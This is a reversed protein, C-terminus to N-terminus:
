ALPWVWVILPTGALLVMLSLPAGLRAYDGFRYGGPGMVLTNNQHGIPTLFDCACGLAVAILFPEPRLGLQTALQAAIPGLMLVAAANNLFPTVAMAMLLVLGVTLAPTLHSAGSTLLNAVTGSAGTSSFAEGIPILCGLMVLVPWEIAGYADKLTIQRFLVCGLAAAFFAVEVRAWGLGVALLALALLLVPVIGRRGNGLSLKRDALPLLALESIATTLSNEFGQFLVVDGAVFRHERLRTTVPKGARRLAFLNVGHRHRLSMSQPTQGVLPSDPTVIVEAVDMEDTKEEPEDLEKSGILEFGSGALVNAVTTPDGLLVIVDGAELPWSEAPVFPRGGRLVATVTADGSSFAEVAGVTPLEELTDPVRLETTYDALSFAEDAQARGTRHPLLRWAFSLFLVTAITLPLGVIAFDFLAFPQGSLEERVKSILLNPSTGIKTITGGILSAFAIPMLYISRPKNSRRATQIAIPIFIGLTGINKVFASLFGTAASMLGVQLSVSKVRRLAASVTRELLSSTAIARGVVLVSAIIVILPNAFGEFAKGSPVVGLVVAALLTLAGVVDYRLRGHIFLALMAGVLVFAEIQHLTM